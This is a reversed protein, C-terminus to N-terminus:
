CSMEDVLQRVIQGSDATEKHAEAGGSEKKQRESEVAFCIAEGGMGLKLRDVRQASSTIVLISIM